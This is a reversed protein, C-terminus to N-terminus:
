AHALAVAPIKADDVARQGAVTKWVNWAMILMGGLFLMGGLLRV